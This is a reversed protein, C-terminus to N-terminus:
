IKEKDHKRKGKQEGVPELSISNTLTDVEKLRVVLSDGLTYVKRTRRGVLRHKHEEYVYFDGPLAAMPILGDAGSDELTVFLGFSTVGSVRGKFTQGIKNKLYITIYRETASREAMAARRETLSTQEGISGIDTGEPLGDKGLKLATILSRHVIIDAYRRIPSTFHSYKKLSLGFHGINEPQYLAQAQTRLALHNVLEQHPTDHVAELLHMFSKPTLAQSKPFSLGLGEVVERFAFIKAPAPEDHVRYLCPAKLTELQQAAAVNALIMFEEILRHSDLRSRVCVDQIYGEENLIVQKEAIELDLTGRYERAKKLLEYAGDLPKIVSELLPATKEDVEGDMARQVQGYTLREVSRM